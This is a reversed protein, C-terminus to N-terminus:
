LRELRVDGTRNIYFTRLRRIQRRTMGYVTPEPNKIEQGQWTWHDLRDGLVILSILIGALIVYVVIPEWTLM